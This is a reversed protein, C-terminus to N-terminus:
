FFDSLQLVQLRFIMEFLLRVENDTTGEQKSIHEHRFIWAEEEECYVIEAGITEHYSEGTNKNMETYIPYGLRDRGTIEYAGNFYSYILTRREVDSTNTRNSVYAEEWVQDGFTVSVSNCHYYQVQQREGVIITGILLAACNIFYTAKLIWRFGFKKRRRLCYFRWEDETNDVKQGEEDQKKKQILTNEEDQGESLLMRNYASRTLVKYEVRTAVNLHRGLIDKRGLEWAMDDLHQVFELALIDFFITIVDDAQVITVFLNMLFLYGMVLRLLCSLIFRNYSLDPFSEQFSKRSIERMLILGQPIEEEMLLGVFIGLTAAGCTPCQFFSCKLYVSCIM